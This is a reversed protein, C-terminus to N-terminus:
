FNSLLHFNLFLILLLFGFVELERGAQFDALPDAPFYFTTSLTDM